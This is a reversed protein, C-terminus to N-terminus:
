EIAYLTKLISQLEDSVIYQKDVYINKSGEAQVKIKYVPYDDGKSKNNEWQLPRLNDWDDRGGASEPYVHDIEWGFLSKNNGYDNRLIWAGCPDKRIYNSDYGSVIRAKEWIKQITDENIM